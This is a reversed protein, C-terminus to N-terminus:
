LEQGTVRGKIVMSSTKYKIFSDIGAIEGTNLTSDGGRILFRQSILVKVLTGSPPIVSLPNMLTITNNTTDISIIKNDNETGVQVRDGVKFKTNVTDSVKITTPTNLYSAVTSNPCICDGTNLTYDAVFNNGVISKSIAVKGILNRDSRTESGNPTDYNTAFAIYDIDDSVLSLRTSLEYNPTIM